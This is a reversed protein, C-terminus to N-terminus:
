GGAILTRARDHQNPFLDGPVRGRGLGQLVMYRACKDFDGLCYRRKVMNAMAPMDAMKENFFPCGKVMECEAM